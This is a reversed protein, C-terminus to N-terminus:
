DNFMKYIIKGMYALVIVAAFSAIIGVATVFLAATTNDIKGTDKFGTIVALTTLVTAALSGMGIGLGVLKKTTSDMAM